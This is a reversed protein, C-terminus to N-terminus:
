QIHAKVEEIISNQTLAAYYKETIKVSKHALCKSVTELRVGKNLLLTAFSKRALHSTCNTEIGALGQIIKLLYNYKQNSIIHLQYNHKKLVEVGMPLIVTTFQTNTKQRNKVIYHTDDDTIQIDEKKLNYIDCYALGTSAQLIFADRVDSLSKNDIKLDYIAKIEDETLYVIDKSGRSYKLRNFPNIQIKNDDKAFTFATKTKTMIGAVTSPKYKSQCDVLFKEALAPTISILETGKPCFKTFCDFANQYKKYASHTLDKGVRKNLIGLYEDFLDGVTMSKVGGNKFYERVSDATLPLNNRMMDLEITNFKRRVEDVYEKIENGRRSEMMKKFVSPYEKRPLNIFVRKQNIILSVEINALGQKNAKSQRCYFQVTHTARM